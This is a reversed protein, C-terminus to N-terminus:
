WKVISIVVRKFLELAQGGAITRRDSSGIKPFKADSKTFEWCWNTSPYLAKYHRWFCWLWKYIGISSGIVVYRVSTDVAIYLSTYSLRSCWFIVWLYEWIIHSYWIYWYCGCSFHFRYLLSGEQATIDLVALVQQWWLVVLLSYTVVSRRRRHHIDVLLWYVLDLSM